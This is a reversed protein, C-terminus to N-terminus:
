FREEPFCVKSQCIRSILEMRTSGSFPVIGSVMEYLLVGCSWVDSVKCPSSMKVLEPASYELCKVSLKSNSLIGTTVESLAPEFDLDISGRFGTIKVCLGNSKELVSVSESHIGLHLINKEHIFKVGNLLQKFLNLLPGEARNLQDCVKLLPEGPDEFVLYAERHDSFTNLLKIVNEHKISTTKTTTPTALKRLTRTEHFVSHQNNFTHHKLISSTHFFQVKPPFFAHAHCVFRLNDNGM